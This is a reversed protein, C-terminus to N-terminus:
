NKYLDSLTFTFTNSGTSIVRIQFQNYDCAIEPVHWEYLTTGTGTITASAGVCGTCYTTNATIAQWLGSIPSPMTASNCGYLVATGAVTGSLRKVSLDTCQLYVNPMSWQVWGTDTATLTDYGNLRVTFPYHGITTYSRYSAFTHGYSAFAQASAKNQVGIGSVLFLSAILMIKSFKM